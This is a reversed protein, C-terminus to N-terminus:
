LSTVCLETICMHLHIYIWIARHICYMLVYTHMWHLKYIFKLIAFIKLFIWALCAWFHLLSFLIPTSWVIISSVAFFPSKINVRLAIRICFLSFEYTGECKKQLCNYVQTGTLKCFMYMCQWSIVRSNFRNVNRVRRRTTKVVKGHLRGIIQPKLCFFIYNIPFKNSIM